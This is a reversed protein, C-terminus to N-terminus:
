SRGFLNRIDIRRRGHGSTPHEARATVRRSHWTAAIFGAATLFGVGFTLMLVQRLKGFATGDNTTFAELLNPFGNGSDGAPTTTM